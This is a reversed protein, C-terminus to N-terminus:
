SIKSPFSSTGASVVTEASLFVIMNVATLRNAGTEALQSLATDGRANPDRTRLDGFRLQRDFKVEIGIRADGGVVAVIDGTRNGAIRGEINGTQAVYGLFGGDLDRAIM